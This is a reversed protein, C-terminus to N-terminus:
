AVAISPQFHKMVFDADKHSIDLYVCDAGLRKM